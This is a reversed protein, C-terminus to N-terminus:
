KKKKNEAKKHPISGGMLFKFEVGAKDMQPNQTKMVKFPSIQGPLIPNYKILAESSTIFTGKKDFFSVVAVVNELSESSINKVTGEYIAYDYETHWSYSVLELKHSQINSATNNRVPAGYEGILWFLLIVIGLILWGKGFKKKPKTVSINKNKQADFPRGCNLCLPALESVEKGCDPCKTLSM